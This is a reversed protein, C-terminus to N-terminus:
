ARRLLNLVETKKTKTSHLELCYPGLNAGSLREHVVNLAAMKEALFLVSKGAALANAIINTITQSKGTGPPGKIALNEGKMVDVLASHQSADASTILLPVAEEVEATDIDYDEAHDGGSEKDSGGFLSQVVENTSVESDGPWKNASLEHFMVLRAFRFRGITIFRRIKWKEKKPVNAEEILKAVKGM